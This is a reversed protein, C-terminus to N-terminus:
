INKWSEWNIIEIDFIQFCKRIILRFCETLALRFSYYNDSDLVPTSKYFKDFLSSLEFIYHFILSLDLSSTVNKLVQPYKKLEKALLYEANNLDEINFMSPNTSKAMLKTALHYNELVHFFLKTTSNILETSKIKIDEKINKILSYNLSIQYLIQAKQKQSISKISPYKKKIFKFSSNELDILYNKLNLDSSKLKSNKVPKFKSDGIPVFILDQAFLKNSKKQLEYIKKFQLEEKKPRLHIYKSFKYYNYFLDLLSIDRAAKTPIENEDILQLGNYTFGFRKKDFFGTISLEKLLKGLPKLLNDIEFSYDSDFNFSNYFSKLSELRIEKLVKWLLRTQKDKSLFKKTLDISLKKIKPNKKNKELLDHLYKEKKLHLKNSNENDLYSALLLGIEFGWDSYFDIIKVSSGQSLLIKKLSNSFLISRLQEITDPHSIKPHSVEIFYNKNKYERSNGFEKPNNIIEWVVNKSFTKRNIFFNILSNNVQIDDFDTESYNNAINERLKIAFDHPPYHMKNAISECSFSFDGNFESKPIFLHKEIEEFRLSLGEKKLSDLIIKIVKEKM